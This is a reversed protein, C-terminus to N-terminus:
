AAKAAGGDRTAAIIDTRRFIRGGAGWNGDKIERLLVWHNLGSAKPGIEEDVIRGIEEVVGKRTEDNLMGEPTTVKLRLRLDAVAAGGVYFHGAPMEHFYAWAIAQAFTNGEPAGEWKLLTDTLRKMLKDRTEPPLAGAPAAVEIMPM